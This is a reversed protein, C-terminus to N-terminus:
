EQSAPSTSASCSASEPENSIAAPSRASSASTAEWSCGSCVGLRSWTSARSSAVQWTQSRQSPKQAYSPGDSSSTARLASASLSSTYAGFPLM